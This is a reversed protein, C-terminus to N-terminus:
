EIEGDIIIQNSNGYYSFKGFKYLNGIILNSKPESIELVDKGFFRVCDPSLHVIKVQKKVIEERSM